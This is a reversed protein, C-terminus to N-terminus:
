GGLLETCVLCVRSIGAYNGTDLGTWELRNLVILLMLLSDNLANLAEFSFPSNNVGM